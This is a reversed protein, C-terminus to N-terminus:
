RRIVKENDIVTNRGGILDCIRVQIGLDAPSRWAPSWQKSTIDLQVSNCRDITNQTNGCVRGESTGNRTNSNTFQIIYVQRNRRQITLVKYPNTSLVSPFRTGGTIGGLM